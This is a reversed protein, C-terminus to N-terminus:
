VSMKKIEENNKLGLFGILFGLILFVITRYSVALLGSSFSNICILIFISISLSKLDSKGRHVLISFLIQGLFFLYILLGFIGSGHLIQNLDIHLVRDNYFGYNGSSNLFEKGFVSEKFNDFSFINRTVLLTELYRGEEEINNAEFRSLRANYREELIDSFQTSVVIIILLAQFGLKVLKNFSIRYYILFLISIVPSIIATRRLSLLLVILLGALLLYDLLRNTAKYKVVSHYNSLFFFIILYVSGSYLSSAILNGGSFNDAVIYDRVRVNLLTSIPFNLIFILAALRSSRLFETYTIIRSKSSLIGIFFYIFPIFLKTFRESSTSFDSTSTMLLILFYLFILYFFINRIESFLSKKYFLFLFITLFLYFTRFKIITPVLSNFVFLCDCLILVAPLFFISKNLIFKM